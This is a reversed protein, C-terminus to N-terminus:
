LPQVLGFHKKSKDNICGNNRARRDERREEVM